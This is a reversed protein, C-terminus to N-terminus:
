AEQLDKLTKIPGGKENMWKRSERRYTATDEGHIYDPTPFRPAQYFPVYDYGMEKYFGVLQDFYRDPDEEVKALKYGMVEEMIEDDAFLEFFPVIGQEDKRKLTNLIISFDPKRAM